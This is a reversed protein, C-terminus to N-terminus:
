RFGTGGTMKQLSDSWSQLMSTMPSAQQSAVSTLDCGPIYAASAGPPCPQGSIQSSMQRTAVMQTPQSSRMPQYTQVVQQTPAPQMMQTAALQALPVAAVCGGLSTAMACALVFPLPRRVRNPSM